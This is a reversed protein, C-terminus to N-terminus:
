LLARYADELAAPYPKHVSLTYTPAFMVCDSFSMIREMFGIKQEPCGMAYGGGHLFLVAPVREYPHKPKLIVMRQESGDDRKLHIKEMNSQKARYKNVKKETDVQSKRLSEATTGKTFHRLVSGILRIDKHIMSNTVKM